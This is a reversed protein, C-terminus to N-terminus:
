NDCKKVKKLNVFRLLLSFDLPFNVTTASLRWALQEFLVVSVFREGRIFDHREVAARLQATTLPASNWAVNGLFGNAQVYHATGVNIYM